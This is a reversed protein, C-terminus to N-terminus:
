APAETSISSTATFMGARWQDRPTKKRFLESFKLHSHMLDLNRRLEVLCQVDVDCKKSLDEIDKPRKPPIGGVRDRTNSVALSTINELSIRFHGPPKPVQM